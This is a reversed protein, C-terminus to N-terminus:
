RKRLQTLLRALEDRIQRLAARQSTDSTAFPQRQRRAQLQRRAGAITFGEEYLLHKITLITELDQRRYRRQGSPTKEPQLSPFETEWYRLVYAPVETLAAAEGIRLREKAPQLSANKDPM